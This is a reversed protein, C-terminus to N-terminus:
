SGGRAMMAAKSGSRALSGGDVYITQGTIYSAAPSSLFYVAEAAEDPDGVRSLPVAAEATKRDGEDTVTSKIPGLGVANARGGYSSIALAVAKTLQSVGGQSAAFAVHDARATVAEISTVNVIAGGTSSASPDESQKKLQKAFAQNVLFTARLNASVIRDFDDETTDLFDASLAESAAHALVDVRGHADLAEAVINHVHLRSSVDGCICSAKGGKDNLEETLLRLKEENADALVLLDGAAAFRRACAEGVGAAAATVIVCRAM